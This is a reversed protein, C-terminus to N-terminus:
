LLVVPKAKEKPGIFLPFFDDFRIYCLFLAIVM